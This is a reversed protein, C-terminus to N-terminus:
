SEMAGVRVVEDLARGTLSRIWGYRRDIWRWIVAVAVAILRRAKQIRCRRMESVFL